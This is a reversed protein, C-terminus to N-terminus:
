NRSYKTCFTVAQEFGCTILNLSAAQPGSLAGRRVPVPQTARLIVQSTGSVLLQQKVDDELEDRAERLMLGAHAKSAVCLTSVPFPPAERLQYFRM